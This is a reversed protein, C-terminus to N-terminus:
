NGSKESSGNFIWVQVLSHVVHVIEPLFHEQSWGVVTSLSEVVDVGSLQHVADFELM